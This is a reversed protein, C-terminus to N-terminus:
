NRIHDPDDNIPPLQVTRMLSELDGNFTKIIPNFGRTLGKFNGMDVENWIAYKARGQLDFIGFHNESGGPNEADKWIEDFAEFFFCTIGSRNTWERIKQYYLGQKFEDTARSGNTGYLQNSFSAWGTEGIHVAKNIGISKMYAATSNYQTVIYDLARDLAAQIKMERSLSDEYSAIGWFDPNYHTDHMPYSHMSIYDVAEILQNLEDVHYDKSGGGWSAFNDSSTIWLDRQLKDTKKLEQLYNVYKLIVSPQVFYSTAWKVMAENGVAIIKVIDPYENALEVATEIEIENSEKDESQHDPNGTFANKCNIWAGLMLYMEFDPDDDKLERIAKLLNASQEFHVNYTRLLKIDMANLLRLDEKLEEITPQLERTKHRYGGYSIAQYKRNGLIESANLNKTESAAHKFSVSEKCSFIIGITCILFLSTACNKAYYLRSCYLSFNIQM